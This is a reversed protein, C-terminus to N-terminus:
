LFHNVTGVSLTLICFVALAAYYIVPAKMTFGAIVIRRTPNSGRLCVINNLNSM